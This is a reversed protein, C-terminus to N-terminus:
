RVPYPLRSRKQENVVNAETLYANVNKASIINMTEIARLEKEFSKRDQAREHLRKLRRAKKRKKAKNIIGELFAAYPAKVSSGAIQVLNYYINKGYVVEFFEDSGLHVVSAYETHKGTNNPQLRIVQSALVFNGIGKLLSAKGRAIINRAKKQPNIVCIEAEPQGFLLFNFYATLPGMQNVYETSATLDKKSRDKWFKILKENYDFFVRLGKQGRHRLREPLVEKLEDTVFRGHKFHFTEFITTEISELMKIYEKTHRGYLFLAFKSWLSDGVPATLRFTSIYNEGEKKMNMTARMKMKIKWEREIHVDYVLNMSKINEFPTESLRKLFSIAVGKGKEQSLVKGAKEVIIEGAGARAPFSNNLSFFFNVSAICICSYKLCKRLTYAM